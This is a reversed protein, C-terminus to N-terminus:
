APAACFSLFLFDRRKPETEIKPGSGAGRRAAWGAEQASDGGGLSKDERAVSSSQVNM